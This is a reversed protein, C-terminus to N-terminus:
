CCFIYMYIYIYMHVVRPGSLTSTCSLQDSVANAPFARLMVPVFGRFLAPFGENKVQQSLWVNSFHLTYQIFLFYQDAQCLFRLQCIWFKPLEVCLLLLINIIIMISQSSIEIQIRVESLGGFKDERWYKGNYNNYVPISTMVTVVSIIEIDMLFPGSLWDGPLNSMWVVKGVAQKLWTSNIAFPETMGIWRCTHQSMSYM